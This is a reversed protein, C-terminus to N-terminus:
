TSADEEVTVHAWQRGKAIHHIQTGSVGHIAAIHTKKEGRYLRRKIDAAAEITLKKRMCGLAVAAAKKIRAQAKREPTYPVGMM